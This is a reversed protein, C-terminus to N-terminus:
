AGNRVRLVINTMGGRLVATQANRILYEDQCLVHAVGVALHDRPPRVVRPTLVATYRDPPGSPNSSDSCIYRLVEAIAYTRLTAYGAESLSRTGEWRVTRSGALSCTSRHLPGSAAHPLPPLTCPAKSQARLARPM